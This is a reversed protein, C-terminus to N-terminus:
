HTYAYLMIGIFLGFPIAVLSIVTVLTIWFIWRTIDFWRDEFMYAM